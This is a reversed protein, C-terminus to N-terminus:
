QYWKQRSVMLAEQVTIRVGDNYATVFPGDFNYNDNIKVRNDRAQKYESHSGTTYKVWGQHNEIDFPRNFNYKKAVHKEDVVNHGALIQVRYTIGTDPSPTSTIDSFSEVVVQATEEKPPPPTKVEQKVIPTSPPTNQEVITETKEELADIPETINIDEDMVKEANDVVEETSTEESTENNLKPVQPIEMAITSGGEDTEESAVESTKKLFGGQDIVLSKTENDKLYTFVGSLSEEDFHGDATVIDYAINLTEEAPISFWVVKVTNEIQTFVGNAKKIPETTCGIPLTEQLKAFGKINNKYLEIEVRYRNDSLQAITRSGKPLSESITSNSVDESAIDIVHVPAEATLRENKELYSFWQSIDNNGVKASNEISLKYSLTFTADEPLTMWIFKADGNRFTFSAGRTEIPEVNVGPPVKVQYKAFGDIKGKEITVEVTHEEGITSAMPANHIIKVEKPIGFNLFMLGVLNVSIILTKLM